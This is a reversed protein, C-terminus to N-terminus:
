DCPTVEALSGEGQRAIAVVREGLEGGRPLRGALALRGVQMLFARLAAEWSPFKQVHWREQGGDAAPFAIYVVRAAGDLVLSFTGYKLKADNERM